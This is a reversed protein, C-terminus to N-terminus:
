QVKQVFGYSEKSATPGPLDRFARYLIYRNNQTIGKFIVATAKQLADNEAKLATTDNLDINSKYAVYPFFGGDPGSIYQPVVSFIQPHTKIDDISIPLKYKQNAEKIVKERFANMIELNKYSFYRGGPTGIRAALVMEDTADLLEDNDYHKKAENYYDQATKGSLQYAGANLINLKWGDDYKGYIALIMLTTTENKIALLATFMEKNLAQYNIFYGSNNDMGTTLTNRANTATNITYYEDIISYEASRMGNSITDVIASLKDGSREIVVPSMLQKVGPTNKSALNEILKKNLPEIQKKIDPNIHANIFTSFVSIQAGALNVTVLLLATILIKKM